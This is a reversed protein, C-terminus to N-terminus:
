SFSGVVARGRRGASCVGARGSRGQVATAEVLIAASVGGMAALAEMLVWVRAARLSKTMRTWPAVDVGASKGLRRRHVWIILLLVIAWVM